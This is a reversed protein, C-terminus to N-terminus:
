MKSLYKNVEWDSVQLMYDNWEKKKVSSYIAVFEEGLVEKLLTSNEFAEVADKLNEPLKLEEESLSAAYEDPDICENVGRLGAAFTVALALYPNASPDPFRLEIKTQGFTKRFKVLANEGKRSWNIRGPADFGSLLRKYSNVIPNTIACLEKAYKLIGGIFYRGEPNDYGLVDEGNKFLSFNLHMGSGAVDMRPKPMFTAYLGFRKAISRVAFKFTVLQDAAKKCEGQRFDIEHQAPAKEHHSSEIEFGMEELNLVMDRRANEGLDIPGVDMYGASEHTVITPIGNEDTHFLFFECEADVLCKYGQEKGKNIVKKLITRPCLAFPKGESNYVDCIIKGVRGQQPRWPLIVFTDLDPHLYLEEDYQYLNDFLASGDFFYENNIVRDMQGPTVAINKLNGFMDVFQLRIFEVDEEEILRLIEERNAM